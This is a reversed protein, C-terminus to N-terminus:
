LTNIFTFVCYFYQDNVTCQYLYICLLLVSQKCHISLPFYVSFTVIMQLANINDLEWMVSKLDHSGTAKIEDDGTNYETYTKMKLSQREENNVMHRQTM